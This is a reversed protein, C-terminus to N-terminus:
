RYAIGHYIGLIGHTNINQGTLFLNPIKTRKAYTTNALDNVNKQLGYMSGNPINLYDRYSLPTCVDMESVADAARLITEVERYLRKGIENKVFVYDGTAKNSTTRQTINGPAEFREASM